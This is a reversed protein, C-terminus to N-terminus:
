VDEPTTLDFLRLSIIDHNDSLDGTAASLGFYYGTPLEIGSVSFCEEFNDANNVNTKVLILLFDNAM